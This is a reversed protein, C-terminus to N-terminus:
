RPELTAEQAQLASALDTVAIRGYRERAANM